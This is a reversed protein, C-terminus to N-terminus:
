ILGNYFHFVTNLNYISINQIVQFHFTNIYFCVTYPYSFSIYDINFKCKMNNDTNSPSNILGHVEFQPRGVVKVVLHWVLLHWVVLLM